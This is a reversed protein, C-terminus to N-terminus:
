FRLTLGINALGASVSLSPKQSKQPYTDNWNDCVSDIMRKGNVNLRNALLGTSLSVVFSFCTVLYFYERQIVPFATRTHVDFPDNCNYNQNDESHYNDYAENYYYIYSVASVTAMLALNTASVVYLPVSAAMKQRGKQYLAYNGSDLMSIIEGKPLVEGNQFAIKSRSRVLMSDNQASLSVAFLVFMLVINQKM